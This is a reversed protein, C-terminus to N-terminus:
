FVIIWIYDSWDFGQYNKEIGVMWKVYEEKNYRCDNDVKKVWIEVFVYVNVYDKIKVLQVYCLNYQWGYYVNIFVFNKLNCQGKKLIVVVVGNVVCVGYIVVFVDKLIFIFEIDNFDMNNFQGDDFVVGDIVYLLVGM